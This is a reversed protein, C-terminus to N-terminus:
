FNLTCFKGDVRLITRCDMQELLANWSGLLGGRPLFGTPGPFAKISHGEGPASTSLAPDRLCANSCGPQGVWAAVGTQAPTISSAM